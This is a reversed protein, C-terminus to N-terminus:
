IQPSTAWATSSDDPLRLTAPEIGGQAFLDLFSLLEKYIYSSM